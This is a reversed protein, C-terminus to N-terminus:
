MLIEKLREITTASLCMSSCTWVAAHVFMCVCSQSDGAILDKRPGRERSNEYGLKRGAVTRYLCRDRKETAFNLRACEYRSESNRTCSRDLLHEILKLCVLLENFFFFFINLLWCSIFPCITFDHEYTSSCHCIDSSNPFM